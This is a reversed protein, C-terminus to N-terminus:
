GYVYRYFEAGEVSNQYYAPIRSFGYKVYMAKATQMTPLTDLVVSSYGIEKAKVMADLFLSKGAGRGRCCPRVYLRKLEAENEAGPKVDAMPRVGVCGVTEGGEIALLIVGDPPAYAGPMTELEEEFGQFCLDIGMWQQYERFMARATPLHQERAEVIKM